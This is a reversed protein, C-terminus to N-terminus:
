SGLLTVSSKDQEDQIALRLSEDIAPEERSTIPIIQEEPLKDEPETERPDAM